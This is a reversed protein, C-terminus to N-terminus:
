QFDRLQVDTLNENHSKGFLPNIGERWHQGRELMELLSNSITPFTISRDFSCKNKMTFNLIEGDFYSFFVEGLRKCLIGSM